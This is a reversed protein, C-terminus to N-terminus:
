RVAEKEAWNTHTVEVDAVVPVTMWDVDEMMKKITPILFEEGKYVEFSLEDHINMQFRTKYPKLFSDVEIIKEKLMDACTGQIIYNYLKYVFRRDGLYYRRGYRNKVFGRRTYSDRVLKQYDLIKPFAKYYAEDMKAAVDKTFGFQTMLAGATAGYNKAFNTAKGLARLEKFEPTTPDVEPFAEMTTASHLDIPKWVANNEDQLWKEKFTLDKDELPDFKKGSASHCKFPMYARCMNLDGGSIDFTYNAQVRLEIQSYDLYYTNDYGNGTTIIARRPHFLEQNNDDYMAHKPFQQFDSSVRGTNAASQNIQTYARGDFASKDLLRLIYASYWKELTRLERIIEAATQAGPRSVGALARDDSSQLVVGWKEKFLDKIRKHQGVKITEGALECLQRRKHIIYKRTKIRSTEIYDRDVNLGVREMRFLPLILNNEKKFLHLQERGIVVPYMLKALELTIETDNMAYELMAQTYLPDKYIDLYTPEPHDEMFKKHFDLPEYIADKALEDFAKKTMGEEKIAMKLLATNHRRLATLASKIKIEDAGTEVSLYKKALAKLAITQMEDTELSLRALIMTDALNNWKYDIGINALMHLDYKINHGFVLDFHKMRDFIEQHMQDREVAYTTNDFTLTMLFPTDAKLHLGTTETDFSLWGTAKTMHELMSQYNDATIIIRKYSM